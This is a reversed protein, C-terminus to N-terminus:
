GNNFINILTENKIIKVTNKEIFIISDKKFESLVRIISETTTNSMEAMEKRTFTEPFVDSNYIFTSLYILVEAVRGRVNKKNQFALFHIYKISLESILRLLYNSFLTNNKIIDLLLTKEFILVKSNCIASASLQYTQKSFITIINLIRDKKLVDIIRKQENETDYVKVFGEILLFIQNNIVGKNIILEGKNYKAMISNNALILKEDNTLCYFIDIDFYKINMTITLSYKTHNFDNTFLILIM